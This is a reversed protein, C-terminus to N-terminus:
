RSKNRMLFRASIIYDTNDTTLVKKVLKANMQVSKAEALISAEETVDDGRKNYYVMSFEKVDLFLKDESTIGSDPVATRVFSEESINYKYNVTGGGADAPLVLTVEGSNALTLDEAARFDRSILELGSRSDRSMASYNGLGAISRAFVGFTPIITVLVLGLLTVTVMMEVLTFGRRGRKKMEAYPSYPSNNFTIM